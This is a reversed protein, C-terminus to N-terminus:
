GNGDKRALARLKQIRAAEIRVMRGVEARMGPGIEREVQDLEKARRDPTMHVLERVACGICGERYATHDAHQLAKLCSPCSM